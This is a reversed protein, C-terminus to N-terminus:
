QYLFARHTILDQIRSYLSLNKTDLILHSFGNIAAIRKPNRRLEKRLTMEMIADREGVM